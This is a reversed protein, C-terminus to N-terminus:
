SEANEIQQSHSRQEAEEREKKALIKSNLNGYKQSWKMLVRNAEMRPNKAKSIKEPIPKGLLKSFRALSELQKKTLSRSYPKKLKKKM